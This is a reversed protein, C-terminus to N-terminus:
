LMACSWQAALVGAGVMPLLLLLLLVCEGHSAGEVEPRPRSCGCPWGLSLWPRSMPLVRPRLVFALSCDTGCHSKLVM